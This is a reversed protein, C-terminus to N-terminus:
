HSKSDKKKWKGQKKGSGDTKNISEDPQSFLHSFTFFLIFLLISLFKM